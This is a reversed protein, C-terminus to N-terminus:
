MFFSTFRQWISVGGTSPAPCIYDENNKPPPNDCIGASAGNALLMSAFVAAATKIILKNKM